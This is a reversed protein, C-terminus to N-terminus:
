LGGCAYTEGYLGRMSDYRKWRRAPASSTIRPTTLM